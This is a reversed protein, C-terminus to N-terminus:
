KIVEVVVNQVDAKRVLLSYGRLEICIPDGLPAIKTIKITVGDTIGMDLLRQKLVQREENLSIVRGKQGRKLFSLGMHPNAQKIHAM